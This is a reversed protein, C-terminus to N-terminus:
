ETSRRLKWALSDERGASGADLSIKIDVRREKPDFEEIVPKGPVRPPEGHGVLTTRMSAPDFSVGGQMLHNGLISALYNYISMARNESLVKNKLVTGPADAYGDIEIRTAPHAILPLECAAFADLAEKVSIKGEEEMRASEAETPVPLRAGNIPFHVALSPIRDQWYAEFDEEEKTGKPEIAVRTDEGELLWATGLLAQLGIGAGTGSMKAGFRFSVASSQKGGYFTLMSQSLVLAPDRSDDDSGFGTGAFLDGESYQLVGELDQALPLTAGRVITTGSMTVSQGSGGLGKSMSLGGLLFGYYAEWPSEDAGAEGEVVGLYKVRIHGALYSVPLYKTLKDLKDLRKFHKKAKKEVAEKIKDFVDKGAEYTEQSAEDEFEVVEFAIVEVEFAYARWGRPAIGLYQELHSHEAFTGARDVLRQLAAALTQRGHDETPALSWGDLFRLVSPRLHVLEDPGLGGEYPPKEMAREFVREIIRDLATIINDRAIGESYGKGLSRGAQLLAHADMATGGRGKGLMRYNADPDVFVTEYRLQKTLEPLQRRQQPTLPFWYHTRVEYPVSPRALYRDLLVPQKSSRVAVTRLDPPSEGEAVSAVGFAEDAEPWRQAFAGLFDVALDDYDGRPALSGVEIIESAASTGGLPKRLWVPVYLMYVEPRWDGAFRFAIPEVGGRGTLGWDSPVRVDSGLSKTPTRYRQDRVVLTLLCELHSGVHNIFLRYRGRREFWTGTLNPERRLDRYPEADRRDNRVRQRPDAPGSAPVERGSALFPDKSPELVVPGRRPEEFYAKTM